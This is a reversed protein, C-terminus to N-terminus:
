FSFQLQFDIRRNAASSGGGAISTSQGFRDSSLNGIPTGSNVNNFLNRASAGITLNYPQNTRGGGFGGGHRGHGGHGRGGGLRVPGGISPGSEGTTGPAPEAKRGFGFTKSVRLNTTFQSPGTRYNIPIVKVGPAPAVDLLGWPTTRLNEALTQSTAFAPRDNFISDNNLDKGITINFPRGSSVNIMPSLRVGYPLGISGGVTARHRVDFSARGYDASLDFPTSPFSGAGSTNSDAYSLSYHGFLSLISALRVNVNTMLQNQKFIGASQYQYINGHDPDPRTGDPLLANVNASVLQHVGRSIVYSVAMTAARSVQRELTFAAQMTYPTKLKPSIKYIIPISQSVPDNTATLDPVNPYFDPDQVLYKQQLVGNWRKEQLALGQSVRDYFMGVGARLVTKPAANKGGGIGWSLGVRPAFDVKDDINTQSEFRVGYSLTINPRIRWDDEAYLGADFQSIGALATGASITFQSAGGCVTTTEGTPASPDNVVPVCTARIQQPTWGQALGKQAIQYATMSTFIFTGNYNSNASSAYRNYRLRGGFRIFHKGHVKSTYNQLEYHDAHDSTRGISNGGGTFMDMVSITPAFNQATQESTNRVYQFRTENITSANLVQTDSIQLNQETSNDDYGRSPLNFQGIGNNTGKSTEYEYRATFTNNPTIQYDLRPSISTRTRPNRVAQSFPIPDFNSDLITANVISTENVNRREANLFFSAKSNLPGGINGSYQETHYGPVEVGPQQRLYPNKSNFSSNNLHTSFQGHYSDKGPKTFIEVRGFGLRDYQASFPNQNIRIERISSKPPLQGGTFGDIYIQGGNPGAGPGALAELDARLDDPDDSLADLDKDKIILAGANSSPDVDVNTAEAQVVVQQDQVAIALPVNLALTQNASIVVGPQEYPAFGKAQVTLTYNGPILGKIEYIGDRGTVASSVQGASGTVSVVAQAIVAGSPDTVLGRASGVPAQALLSGAFITM